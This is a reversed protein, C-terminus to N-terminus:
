GFVGRRGARAVFASVEPLTAEIDAEYKLLVNLTDKVIEPELESAQLLVLM